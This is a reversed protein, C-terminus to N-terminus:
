LGSISWMDFVTQRLSTVNWGKIMAEMIVKQYWPDSLFLNPKQPSPLLFLNVGRKKKNKLWNSIECYFLLLHFASKADSRELSKGQTMTALKRIRIDNKVELHRKLPCSLFLSFSHMCVHIHTHMKQSLCFFSFSVHDQVQSHGLVKAFVYGHVFVNVYWFLFFFSLFFFFLPFFSLHNFSLFFFYSIFVAAKNICVM